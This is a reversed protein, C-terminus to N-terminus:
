VEGMLARLAHAVAPALRRRVAVVVEGPHAALHAPVQVVRAVLPVERVKAVQALGARAEDGAGVGAGARGAELVEPGAETHEDVAEAERRDLRYLRRRLGAGLRQVDIPLEARELDSLQGVDDEHLAIRGGVAYLRHLLDVQHDLVAPDRGLVALEDVLGAQSRGPAAPPRAAPPRGARRRPSVIANSQITRPAVSTSPVPPGSRRASRAIAEPRIAAIPRSGSEASASRTTSAVPRYTQGPKKSMWLWESKVSMSFRGAELASRCPTVVSTTPLQPM